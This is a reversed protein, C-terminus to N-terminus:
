VGEQEGPVANDHVRRLWLRQTWLLLATLIWSSLAAVVPDLLRRVGRSTRSGWRDQHIIARM